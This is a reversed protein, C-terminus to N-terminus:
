SEFATTALSVLSQSEFGATGHGMHTQSEFVELRRSLAAESAERASREQALLNKYTDMYAQRAKMERDWQEKIQSAQLVITAHEQRLQEFVSSEMVDRQRKQDQQMYSM